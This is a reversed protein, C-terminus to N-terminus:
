DIKETLVVDAKNERLQLNKWKRIMFQVVTTTQAGAPQNEVRRRHKGM